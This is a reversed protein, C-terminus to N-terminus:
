RKQERGLGGKPLQITLLSPEVPLLTVVGPHIGSEPNDLNRMPSPQLEQGWLRKTKGGGEGEGREDASSTLGKVVLIRMCIRGVSDSYMKKFFLNLSNTLLDSWKEKTSRETLKLLKIVQNHEPFTLLFNINTVRPGLPLCIFMCIHIIFYRLGLLM